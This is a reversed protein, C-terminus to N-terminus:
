DTTVQHPRELLMRCISADCDARSFKSKAEECHKYFAELKKMNNAPHQTNRLRGNTCDQINLESYAIIIQKRNFSNIGNKNQLLTAWYAIATTRCWTM